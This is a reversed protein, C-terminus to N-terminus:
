ARWPLSYLMLMTETSLHSLFCTELSNEERRFAEREVVKGGDSSIKMKEKKRKRRDSQWEKIIQDIKPVWYTSPVPRLTLM